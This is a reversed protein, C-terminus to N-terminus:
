KNYLITKNEKLSNQVDIIRQNSSGCWKPSPNSLEGIFKGDVLIDIYKTLELNQIDEWLYGTYVWINKLPYRRKVEKLFNHIEYRNLLSLPDGGSLTLGSVYDKSLEDFIEEIASSDFPIGSNESWTQPNQCGECHHECHSVWLVVRIGMGNKLDCKTIDHYRM